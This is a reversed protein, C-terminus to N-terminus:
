REEAPFSTASIVQVSIVRFRVAPVLSDVTSVYPHARLSPRKSGGLRGNFIRWSQELFVPAFASKLLRSSVNDEISLGLYFESPPSCTASAPKLIGSM